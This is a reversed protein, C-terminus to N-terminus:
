TTYLTMMKTTQQNDELAVNSSATDVAFPFVMKASVSRKPTKRKM